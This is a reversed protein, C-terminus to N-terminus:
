DDDKAKSQLDLSMVAATDLFEVILNKFIRVCLMAETKSKRSRRREAGFVEEARILSVVTKEGNEAVSVV